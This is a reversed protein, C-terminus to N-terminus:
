TYHNFRLIFFATLHGSKKMSSMYEKLNKFSHMLELQQITGVLALHIPEIVTWPGAHQQRESQVLKIRCDRGSSM